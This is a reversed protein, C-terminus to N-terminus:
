SCNNVRTAGHLANSQSSTLELLKHGQEKIDMSLTRVFTANSKFLLEEVKSTDIHSRPRQDICELLTEHLNGM